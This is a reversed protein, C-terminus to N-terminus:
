RVKQLWVALVRAVQAMGEGSCNAPTDTLRHWHPGQLPLSGSGNTQRLDDM